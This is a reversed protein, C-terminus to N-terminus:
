NYVFYQCGEKFGNKTYNRYSGQGKEVDAM